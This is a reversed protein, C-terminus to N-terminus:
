PWLGPMTLGATEEWGAMLNLNQIAQGAAGKGLNDIAAVVVVRRTGRIVRVGLHCQNSGLVAKTQVQEPEALLQVFPEGAYRRRYLAMIEEESCASRLTAYVTTLIGREMPILHPVFVVPLVEGKVALEQQIEPTHRHCGIKYARLNHNAEAFQLAPDSGRGAGSLGSKADILIEGEVLGEEVLPLLALLSATPYCGPNAVLRAGVVAQRNKEPLGYVAEALLHPATHAEGYWQQYLAPDKLRFDAGLDIVRVGNNLLRETVEMATGAPLALFVVECGADLVEEPSVFCAETYGHLQPFVQTWPTGAASRSGAAAVRAYPHRLLLRLLEGGAYGNAGIIGVPMKTSHNRSGM